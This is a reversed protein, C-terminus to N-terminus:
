AGLDNWNDTFHYRSIQLITDAVSEFQSDIVLIGKDTALIGINGGKGYLCYVDGAVHQCDFTAEERAALHQFTLLVFLMFGIKGLVSNM